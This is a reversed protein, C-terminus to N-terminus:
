KVQTSVFLVLLSTGCLGIYITYSVLRYYKLLKLASQHEKAWDPTKFLWWTGVYWPYSRFGLSNMEKLPFWFPMGHPRGDKEWQDHFDDHEIKTLRSLLFAPLVLIILIITSFITGAVSLSSETGM